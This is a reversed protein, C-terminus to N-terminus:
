HASTKPIQIEAPVCADSEAVASEAVALVLLLM